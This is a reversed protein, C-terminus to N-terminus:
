DCGWTARFIARQVDHMIGVAWRWAETRAEEQKARIDGFARSEGEAATVLIAREVARSRTVHHLRHKRGKERLEFAALTSEGDGVQQHLITQCPHRVSERPRKGIRSGSWQSVCQVAEDFDLDVALQAKFVVYLPKKNKRRKQTM